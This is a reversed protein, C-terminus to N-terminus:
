LLPRPQATQTNKKGPAPLTSLSFLLSLSLSLHTKKETTEREGSPSGGDDGAAFVFFSTRQSLEVCVHEELNRSATSLSAISIMLMRSKSFVRASPRCAIVNKRRKRQHCWSMDDKDRGANGEGRRRLLPSPFLPPRHFFHFFLARRCSRQRKTFHLCADWPIFTSRADEKSFRITSIAFCFTHESSFRDFSPWFWKAKKQHRRSSLFFGAVSAESSREKRKKTKLLLCSTSQGWRGFSAEDGPPSTRLSRRRRECPSPSLSFSLRLKSCFDFLFSLTKTSLPSLPVLRAVNKLKEKREKEGSVVVM